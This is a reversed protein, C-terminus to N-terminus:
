CCEELDSDRCSSACVRDTPFEAHVSHITVRDCVSGGHAMKSKLRVPLLKWGHAAKRSEEEGRREEEDKERKRRCVQEGNAATQVGPTM